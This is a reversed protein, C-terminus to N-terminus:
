IGKDTNVHWYPVHTYTLIKRSFSGFYNAALDSRQVGDPKVFLGTFHGMKVM